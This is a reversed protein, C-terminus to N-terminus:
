ARASVTISIKGYNNWYFGLVDNAFCFVGGEIVAPGIVGGNGGVNYCDSLKNYFGEEGYIGDIEGICCILAFWDGDKIRKMGEFPKMFVTSKYGQYDTEIFWDTWKGFANVDM